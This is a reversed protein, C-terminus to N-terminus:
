VDFFNVRAEEALAVPERDGHGQWDILGMAGNPPLLYGGEAISFM